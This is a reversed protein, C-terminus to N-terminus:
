LQPFRPYLYGPGWYAGYGWWGYVDEFYAPDRTVEPDYGPVDTMRARDRDIQVQDPQVSTVADVPVLFRDKGIGLFGGSGIQLFRVRCEEDDVLLDEVTGIEEGSSDVASRARVDAAPDAITRDTESLPVLRGPTNTATM